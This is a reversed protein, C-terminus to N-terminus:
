KNRFDLGGMGNLLLIVPCPILSIMVPM